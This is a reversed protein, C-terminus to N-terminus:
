IQSNIDDTRLLMSTARTLNQKSKLSSKPVPWLYLACEHLGQHIKFMRCKKILVLSGIQKTWFMKSIKQSGKSSFLMLLEIFSDTLSASM